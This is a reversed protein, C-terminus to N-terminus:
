MGVMPNSPRRSPKSHPAVGVPGRVEDPPAAAGDDRGYGYPAGEDPGARFTADHSPVQREGMHMDHRIAAGVAVDRDAGQQFINLADMNMATMAKLVARRLEDKLVNRQRQGELVENQCGTLQKRIKTLEAEYRQVIERTVSMLKAEAAREWKSKDGGKMVRYWSGFVAQKLGRCYVKYAVGMLKGEQAQEAADKHWATVVRRLLSQQKGVFLKMASGAGADKSTSELTALRGRAGALEAELSEIKARQSSIVHQNERERIAAQSESSAAIEARFHALQAISEGLFREHIEQMAQTSADLAPDGSSGAEASHHHSWSTNTEVVAETNDSADDGPMPSRAGERPIDLTPMDM